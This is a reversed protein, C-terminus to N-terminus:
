WSNLNSSKFLFSLEFTEVVILATMRIVTISLLVCLSHHVLGLVYYLITGIKLINFVGDSSFIWFLRYMSCKGIIKISVNQVINILRKVGGGGGESVGSIM